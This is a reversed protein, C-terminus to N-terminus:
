NRTRCWWVDVEKRSFKLMKLSIGMAPKRGWRGALSNAGARTVILSAAAYLDPLEAEVYEFSRYGKRKKPAANKDRFESFQATKGKGTIHVVQCVNLLEPLAGWVAENIRKAGLSGGMVLVLPKKADFGALKLGKQRSGTFLSARIPIGTVVTKQAPFSSAAEGYGLCIRQAFRALLRTTMGPLADSDHIVLPVRFLWGAVMVPLSVYGGKSFIVQPRFQGIIWLSKLIGAGVKFIDTINHWDAYRRWKGVPITKHPWGWNQVMKQELGMKSGVYLISLHKIQKQLAEVVPQHPLVHGATGGGTLLIKFSKKPSNKPKNM